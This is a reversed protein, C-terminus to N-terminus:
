AAAKEGQATSILQAVWRPLDTCLDDKRVFAAAGRERCATEDSEDSSATIMVVPIARLTENGHILDLLELGSCGPINIDAVVLNPAPARGAAIEGLRASAEDGSAIWDVRVLGRRPLITKMLTAALADDEVLLILPTTEAGEGAAIPAATGTDGAEGDTADLGHVCVRNRGGRKAQYVAEDAEQVIKDPANLRALPGAQTSSVGLSVTVRLRDPAGEVGSLDFEDREIAVRMAEAVAQADAIVVGPLLVVFEEGGYRYVRGRDGVTDSARRALEVLVADGAAHGHTDNVSKFKDADFFVVSLTEGAEGRRGESSEFAAALDDDFSKRNALGTLGDTRAQQALEDARRQTEVQLELSRESAQSMIRRVNATEGMEVDFMKALTRSSEDITELLEQQNLGDGCWEKHTDAFERLRTPTAGPALAEGAMRGLAVARVLGRSQGAGKEGRHHLKIADCIDEPLKWKAGLAAGVIAHNTGLSKHECKCLESVRDGVEALVAAYREGLAVFMALMGVDQFLGGTFAEDPDCLNSRMAIERAASAGHISRRWHAQLDFGDGDEVSKTSEVLSFGLVLSKVTALGLFMLARDISGCPQSLGYFSSNVTRLVKASLAQDQRVVKAIENINADADSTLDLLRVAVSPLSPLQGCELVENLVSASM